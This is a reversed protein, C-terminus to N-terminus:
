PVFPTDAVTQLRFRAAMTFSAMIGGNETDKAMLISSPDRLQAVGPITHAMLVGLAWAAMGRADSRTGGWVTVRIRPNTCVPWESAGGDDFVVLFPAGNSKWGPDLAVGCGAPATILPRLYDAIIRPGDVPQVQPRTM